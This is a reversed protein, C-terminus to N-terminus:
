SVMKQIRKYLTDRSINLRRATEARTCQGEHILLFIEQEIPDLNRLVRAKRRLYSSEDESRSEEPDTISAGFQPMASGNRCIIGIDIKSGFLDSCRRYVLAESPTHNMQRM